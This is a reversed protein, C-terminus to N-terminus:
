NLLSANYYEKFSQFDMNSQGNNQNNVMAEGEPTLSEDDGIIGEEQMLKIGVDNIKITNHKHSYDIIGLEDLIDRAAVLKEDGLQVRSDAEIAGAQVAKALVKKQYDTLEIGHLVHKSLENLM